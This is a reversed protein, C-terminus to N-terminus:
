MEHPARLISLEKPEAIIVGGSQKPEWYSAEKKATVVGGGPQKQPPAQLQRICLWVDAMEAEIGLWRRLLTKARNM